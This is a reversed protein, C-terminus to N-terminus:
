VVAQGPQGRGREEAHGQGPARAHHGGARLRQINGAHRGAATAAHRLRQGHHPHHAYHGPGGPGGGARPLQLWYQYHGKVLDTLDLGDSFDVPTSFTQMDDTSVCVKCAAKGALVLGLTCGPQLCQKNAPRAAIIYPSCHEFTVSRADEAAVGAKYSGGAFDPKYTFVANGFRARRGPDDEHRPRATANFMHAPDNLYTIHRNPGDMGDVCIGWYVLRGKPGEGLGPRPFRRLTEGPRLNVMPPAGAYGCLLAYFKIETYTGAGDGPYLEPLWGRNERATRDTLYQKRNVKTLEEINMM